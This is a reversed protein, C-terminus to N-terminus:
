NYSHPNLTLEKTCFSYEQQQQNSCVIVLRDKSFDGMMKQYWRIGQKDLNSAPEDLLLLPTDSFIALALRVRQKMGSSFYKLEKDSSKELECLEIIKEPTLSPYFNKFKSHFCISEMLTYEELLELYPSAFSLHQYIAESTIQQQNITAQQNKETGNPTNRIKDSLYYEVTGESLLFNGAIIQLLTSKGSGNPGLIAYANDSTFEYSLHKFIWEQNYRKGINNLTIRM